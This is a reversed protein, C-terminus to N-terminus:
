ITVKRNQFAYELFANKIENYKGRPIPIEALCSMTIARYSLNQVYELNVLYSRHPRLFNGCSALRKSLEDMSGISELVKGNTLHIFLTRHIVECYEMQTSKIRTIGSKCRLLLSNTQEKECLSFVSDMLRFFSEACIPKLQYYYANVTYSQVAFEASSTLFIIKVNSDYSRIEAAVNIGNEGPMLVDLFLIDFRTGREIEALLDLPSHFAIYDIIQNRKVSYQELLVRLDNLVSLDDDCFALKVM